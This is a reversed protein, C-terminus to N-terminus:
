EELEQLIVKLDHRSGWLYPIILLLFPGWFFSALLIPAFGFLIGSLNVNRYETPTLDAYDEKKGAYIRYNLFGHRELRLQVKRKKVRLFFVLHGIEHLLISAFLWAFGSVLLGLYEPWLHLDSYFIM